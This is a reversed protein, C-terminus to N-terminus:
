RKKEVRLRDIKKVDFAREGLSAFLWGILFFAAM